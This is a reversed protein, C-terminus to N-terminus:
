MCDRLFQLKIVNEFVDTSLTIYYYHYYYEKYREYVLIIQYIM